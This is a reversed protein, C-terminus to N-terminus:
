IKKKIGHHGTAIISMKDFFKEEKLKDVTKINEKHNMNQIIGFNKIMGNSLSITDGAILINNNIIYMASGITHGPTLILKISVNDITITEADEMFNCKKIGRNYLILRRAKKGTIMPEEKESIFVNANKFLRLSGVHDFDSHTLFVYSVKNYDLKLKKFAIRTLLKSMGTDFTILQKGTDYVYFNVMLSRISYLNDNIKQTRIPKFM